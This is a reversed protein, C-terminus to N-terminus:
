DLPYKCTTKNKVVGDQIHLDHPDFGLTVHPYFEEPKFKSSGGKKIFLAALARRAVQASPMEVVVFWTQEKKQNKEVVGQGVCVAKLTTAKPDIHKEFVGRIEAPALVKVLLDFEPPTVLTVHAESRHQLKIGNRKEVDTRLAAFPEFDLDLSVYPAPKEPGLKGTKLVKSDLHLAPGSPAAFALGGLTWALLVSRMM